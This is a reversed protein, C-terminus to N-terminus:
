EQGETKIHILSMVYPITVTGSVTHTEGKENVVFLPVQNVKLQKFLKPDIRIPATIGHKRLELVKAVFAQFSNNPLGRVVFVGHHRILDENLEKWVLLPVSFSLCVQLSPEKDLTPQFVGCKGKCAVKNANSADDQGQIIAQAEALMEKSPKAGIERVQSEYKKAKRASIEALEEADAAYDKIKQGIVTQRIATNADKHLSAASDQILLSTLVLSWRFRLRRFGMLRWFKLQWVVYLVYGLMLVSLMANVGVPSSLVKLFSAQPSTCSTFVMKGDVIHADAQCKQAVRGLRQVVDWVSWCAEVAILSFLGLLRLFSGRYRYVIAMLFISVYLVRYGKCMFCAPYGKIFEWYIVQLVGQGGFLLFLFSRIKIRM